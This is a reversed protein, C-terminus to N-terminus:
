SLLTREHARTCRDPQMSGGSLGLRTRTRSRRREARGLKTLIGDVANEEEKGIHGPNM